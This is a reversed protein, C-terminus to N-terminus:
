GHIEGAQDPQQSPITLRFCIKGDENCTLSLDGEHSLAINRAIALGLGTGAPKTTFFPEFIKAVADSPIPDGRNEIEIRIQSDGNARAQLTIESGNPAADIANIVLNLLAQQMQAVDISAVLAEPAAHVISIGRSNARARSIDAVYSIVDAVACQCRAPPAPRAYRLFDTTLKELRAAEKAAIGFMEEREAHTIASNTATELSSSIMAVPNRIEHAVASAFRGVAGLKEEMLLKERTERLQELNAARRSEEQRLQNVVMWFLVGVLLCILGITAAEFYEGVPVPPHFRAFHRVWLLSLSAGLVAVAVTPLLSFRFASEVAPMVLLVWYPSDQRNTLMAFVIALLLNSAVSCLTLFTVARDSVQTSRAQIWILEVTRLLFAAGLVSLLLISPQGLLSAFLTHFLLLVALVLLNLIVFISEQRKFADLDSAQNTVAARM